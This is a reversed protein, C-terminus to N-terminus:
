GIEVFGRDSFLNGYNCLWGIIFHTFLKGQVYAVLELTCQDLLSNDATDAPSAVLIFSSMTTSINDDLPFQCM